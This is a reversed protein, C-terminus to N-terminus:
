RRASVLDRTPGSALVRRHPGAARGIEGGTHPTVDIDFV